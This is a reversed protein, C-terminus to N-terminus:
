HEAGRSECKGGEHDNAEGRTQDQPEVSPLSEGGRLSLELSLTM